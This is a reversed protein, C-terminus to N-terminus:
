TRSPATAATASCSAGALLEHGVFLDLWGDNDFDAWAARTRATSPAARPGRAETVDTFTGDGNNRLLSNRIPSRGAAACARLHRAPRRQRLRDPRHQARRAPRRPGRARTVDEFTGDGSNRYLRLPECPDVSSLVVDLLGDGDFDDAITGGAIDSRTLGAPGAVDWFRGPDEASAFAAPGIRMREPVGEPYSGLTMAAVNLLWRM